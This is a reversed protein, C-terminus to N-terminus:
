QFPLIPYSSKASKHVFTEISYPTNNWGGEFITTRDFETYRFKPFFTDAEKDGHVCTLEVAQAYQFGERYIEAGGILFVKHTEAADIADKLNPFVLAGPAKYDPNRSVVFNTRFPLPRFQKPLSEWTKRGMIVTHGYTLQKFRRKDNPIDYLLEGNMGLGYNSFNIAAILAIQKM